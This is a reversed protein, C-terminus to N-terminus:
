SINIFISRTSSILKNKPLNYYNFLYLFGLHEFLKKQCNQGGQSHCAGSVKVELDLGGGLGTSLAGVHGDIVGDV